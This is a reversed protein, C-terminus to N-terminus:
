STLLVSHLIALDRRVHGRPYEAVNTVRQRLPNGDAVFIGTRRAPQHHIPRPEELAVGVGDHRPSNLPNM